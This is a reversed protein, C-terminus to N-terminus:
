LARTLQVSRKVSGDVAFTFIFKAEPMGVSHAIARLMQTAQELAATAEPLLNVKGTPANVHQAAAQDADAQAQLSPVPISTQQQQQQAATAAAEAEKQAKTKRGKPAPPLPVAPPTAVAQPPQPPQPVVGAFPAGQPAMVWQGNVLVMQPPPGPPLTPAPPTQPAMVWKGDVVIMQPPPGPPAMQQPPAMPLQMQGGPLPPPAYAQPTNPPPNIGNQMSQGNNQQMSQLQTLLDQSHVQQAMISTMRQAPSLNCLGQFECGGFADCARANPPIDLARLGKDAAMDLLATMTNCSKVVRELVPAVENRHLRLRVPHVAPAGTTRYYMWELDCWESGTVWMAHAAYLNAQIDARLRNDEGEIPPHVADTKAWRFDKTSKHDGVLPIPRPHFIEYDKYGRFKHGCIEITFEEEVRLGATKPMPLLHLGAMAIPGSPVTMNLPIGDKLWREIQGHVDLGLAASPGPPSRLGDIKSFAWKRACLDFTGVQSASFWYGVWTALDDRRTGTKKDEVNKRARTEQATRTSCSSSNPHEMNRFLSRKSCTGGRVFPTLSIKDPRGAFTRRYSYVIM